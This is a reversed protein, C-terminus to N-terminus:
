EPYITPVILDYSIENENLQESVFAMIRERESDSFHGDSIQGTFFSFVLLCLM